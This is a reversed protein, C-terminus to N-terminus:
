SFYFFFFSVIRVGELDTKLLEVQEARKQLSEYLQRNEASVTEFKSHLKNNENTLNAITDGMSKLSEAKAKLTHNLKENDM